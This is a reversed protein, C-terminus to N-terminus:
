RFANVMHLINTSTTFSSRKRARSPTRRVFLHLGEDDQRSVTSMTRKKKAFKRKVLTKDFILLNGGEVGWGLSLRARLEVGRWLLTVAKGVSPV